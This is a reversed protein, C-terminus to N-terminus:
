DKGSTVPWEYTVNAVRVSQDLVLGRELRLISSAGLHAMGFWTLDGLVMRGGLPAHRQTGGVYASLISVVLQNLSTSEVKALRALNKHLSRPVRQVWRGSPLDETPSPKPVPQGNSLSEEIWLRKAEDIHVLAEAQSEGHAACGELEEIEAVWDGDEDPRLSITYPLRLYDDLEM